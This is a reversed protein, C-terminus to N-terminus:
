SRALVEATRADADGTAAPSSAVDESAGIAPPAVDATAAAPLDSGDTTPDQRDHADTPIERRRRDLADYVAGTVVAYVGKHLMDTALEQGTWRWPVDAVGLARYMAADGSWVLAFHAASATPGTLGAAGMAGRLGGMAVGHAWHVPANFQQVDAASGADKGPVIHAGVQGPVDSPARGTVAMELRETITMAITGALGAAM